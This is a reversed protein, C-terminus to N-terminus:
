LYKVEQLGLSPPKPEVSNRYMQKIQSQSIKGSSRETYVVSHLTTYPCLCSLCVRTDSHKWSFLLAKLFSIHSWLAMRLSSFSLVFHGKQKSKIYVNNLKLYFYSLM